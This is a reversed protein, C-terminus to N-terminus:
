IDQAVHLTEGLVCEKKSKVVLAIACSLLLAPGWPQPLRLTIEKHLRVPELDKNIKM